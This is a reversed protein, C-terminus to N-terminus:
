KLLKKIRHLKKSVSLPEKLAKSLRALRAKRENLRELVNSDDPDGVVVGSRIHHDLIFENIRNVERELIKSLLHSDCQSFTITARSPRTGTREDLSKAWNVDDLELQAERRETHWEGFYDEDETNYVGRVHWLPRNNSHDWGEAIIFSM